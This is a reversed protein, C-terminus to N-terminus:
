TPRHPLWAIIRQQLYDYFPNYRLRFLWEYPIALTEKEGLLLMAAPFPASSERRGPGYLPDDGPFTLALHSLSLIGAPWEAGLPEAASPILSHAPRRRASVAMTQSTTNTVLTLVFPLPSELNQPLPQLTAAFYPALPAFRNIDFVVLENDAQALINLLHTASGEAMVTADVASTFVLIKPFDQGRGAATLNNLRSSVSRTLKFVQSAANMSFAGYKYPDLEPFINLWGLRALGPIDSLSAFLGAFRAAPHITVAPSILVLSAPTTSGSNKQALKQLTYDLALTAGTSFGILSLPLGKAELYKAALAVVGAMEQWTCNRIGSPLTGHGPLRLGVVWYNRQNLQEGIARLSYPSDGMGHLLLVAGIPHEAPLEYSRNFNNAPFPAMAPPPSAYRLLREEPRTLAFGLVTEELERFLREELRLYDPFTQIEGANAATYEATLLHNHWPQLRPKACGVLLAGALCLLLTQCIKLRTYSNPLGWRGAPMAPNPAPTASPGNSTAALTM